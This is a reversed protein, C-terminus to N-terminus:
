DQCRKCIDKKTAAREKRWFKRKNFPRLHKWWESATAIIGKKTTAM